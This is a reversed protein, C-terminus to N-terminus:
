VAFHNFDWESLYVCEPIERLFREDNLMGQRPKLAKFLLAIINVWFSLFMFLYKTIQIMGAINHVIIVIINDNISLITINAPNLM